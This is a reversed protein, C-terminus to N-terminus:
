SNAEKNKLCSELYSVRKSLEKVANVLAATVSRDYFGYYGDQGMPAASPIVDVTENAFFGIEVAANEGRKEIDDLWQYAVPRLREVEALGPVHADVVERKLKADSAASLVGNADANVARSGSGGLNAITVVGTSSIALRIASATSDFIQFPANATDGRAILAWTRVNGTSNSTITVQPNINSAAAGVLSLVSGNVVHTAQSSSAGLTWVSSVINGSNAGATIFDLRNAASRAFGADTNSAFAISPATSTGNNAIVTGTVSVSGNVVHTQTGASTGITVLGASSINLRDSGGTSFNLTDAGASWMGTNLDGTFTYSPTTVAGLALAVSTGTAAGIVPTILTPTNALVLAGSGTPTTVGSLYGLETATVSSASIVGGASSVLARSATVTALKSLAIAASANVDADVIVGSSIATVGANSIVVDGSMAVSTAVNGASGVLINGSTLSALKSFDIAAAADVNANVISVWTPASTGNSQLVQNASGAALKTAAGGVGGYILQGAGDMPNTLPSTWGLGTANASNATLVQGDTGVAFTAPTNAASAAILDGKATFLSKPVKADLQTQIASTVGNVYGIETATTTAAAIFGSGDSVLARSATTAALKSLAIAASPNVDANVIVGSSIATVGANSITIDGTMAVSTAVNGASGVLINASTLAALKSFDIAASASIDANVIVGSSIATVGANSITVDGTMAVSTAVNGASGVLINGSTLSALKSFAIAASASIDGNVISTALNLKSYAIAASANIMANTISGNVIDASLTDAAFTLDITTTDTVSLGNQIPTGNFTLVNSSNVGLPLDASNAQNRWNIVDARALRVQGTSAANSTRSKYYISKLGYTAGFDVEALLFFSGGAKQLMGGTVAEAWDTANNGWEEDGSEPYDYSVGNITLPITM